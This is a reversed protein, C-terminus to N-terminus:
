FNTTINGGEHLLTDKGIFKTFDPDARLSNRIHVPLIRRKKNDKAVNGAMEVIEATLYELVASM